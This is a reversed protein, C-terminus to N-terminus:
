WQQQQEIGGSGNGNGNGNGTADNPTSSLLKQLVDPERRILFYVCDLHINEDIAAMVLAEVINVPTDSYRILTGEVAEMVKKYGYKGCAYQFPTDDYGNKKFLLSLGKNKPYYRIGYEFILQFRRISITDCAALHIPFFGKYKSTHILLVNPDWEVLFRFRKEPFYNYQTGLTRLLDYRQTDEKQLLGNKRLQILVQLYADDNHEYHESRMLDHLVYEDDDDEDGILLGGRYQEEFLGLEIALRAFLPIFSVAKVNICRALLRIPYFDIGDEDENRRSLVDPFFRIATEVEEETDRDSDLGHYNDSDINKNSCLLKHIDNELSELFREIMRDMKSRTRKPFKGHGEIVSITKIRRTRRADDDNDDVATDEEADQQQDAEDEINTDM